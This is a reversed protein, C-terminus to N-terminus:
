KFQDLLTQFDESQNYNPDDWKAECCDIPLLKNGQIIINWIKLDNHKISEFKLLSNYIKDKSPYCGNLMKFTLLNIGPQWSAFENSAAKHFTKINFDSNIHYNKINEEPLSNNWHIRQIHQKNKKFYFMYDFVNDTPRLFRSIIEGNQSKLYNEILELYQQGAANKDEVPPTEIIINDGMNLIADIVQQWKDGFHHVVNLALVVDFHECESLIQLEESTICKKLLIIKNLNNNEYCLKELRDATQEKSNTNYNGEIMVCTADFDAAINFSFYGESAGIDLVTIPRKYQKLIKKIPEYRPACSTSGLSIIQGNILIDQYQAQITLFLLSLVILPRVKMFNGGTISIM